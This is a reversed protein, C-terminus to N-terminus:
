IPLLTKLLFDCFVKQDQYLLKYLDHYNILFLHNDCQDINLIIHNNNNNIKHVMRKYILSPITTQIPKTM